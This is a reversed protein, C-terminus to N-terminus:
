RQTNRGTLHRERRDLQRRLQRLTESHSADGILNSSEEPDTQCDYLEESGDQYRMYHWRQTRLSTGRNFSLAADKVATAPDTIVPLLSTGQAAAPIPADVLDCVTPYLDVLEVISESSAPEQGPVHILLPVRIVEEHLNSKQWLGHEGLHYGHDSTFIVATNDRHPSTELARLVRGVQRDMFSVSAYYAAWMRKQNEPYKGIPNNDNRIGQKGLRPIDDIDDTWNGPMSIRDLSYPAFDEGPAVM